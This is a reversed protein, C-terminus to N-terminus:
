LKYGGFKEFHARSRRRRCGRRRWRAAMTTTAGVAIAVAVITGVDGDHDGGDNGFGDNDGGGDDDDGDDDDGDYDDGDDDGDDSDGGGDDGDVDEGPVEIKKTAKTAMREATTPTNQTISERM